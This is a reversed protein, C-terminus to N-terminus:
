QDADSLAGPIRRYACGLGANAKDHPSGVHNPESSMQKLWAGMEVPDIAADFAKEVAAQDAPPSAADALVGGGFLLTAAAFALSRRM